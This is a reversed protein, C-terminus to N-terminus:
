QFVAETDDGEVSEDMVFAVTEAMVSRQQMFSDFAGDHAGLQVRQGRHNTRELKITTRVTRRRKVDYCSRFWHSEKLFHHHYINTAAAVGLM